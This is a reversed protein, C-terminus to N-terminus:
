TEFLKLKKHAKTFFLLNYCVLFLIFYFYLNSQILFIFSPKQNEVFWSSSM